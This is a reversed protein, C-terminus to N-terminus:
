VENKTPLTLHTYSVTTSIVNAGNLSDHEPVVVFDFNKLSVKPNQIHINIIKNKFKNIFFPSVIKMWGAMVILEVDYKVLTNVIELEFLM